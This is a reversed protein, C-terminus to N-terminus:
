SGNNRTRVKSYYLENLVERVIVKVQDDELKEDVYATIRSRKEITSVQKMLEKEM